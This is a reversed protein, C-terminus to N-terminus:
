LHKEPKMLILRDANAVSQISYVSTPIVLHSIHKMTSPDITIVSYPEPKIGTVTYTNSTQDAPVYIWMRSQADVAAIPRNVHQPSWAPSILKPMPTLTHWPYKSLFTASTGLQGSGPYNMATKWDSTGWHGMFNDKDSLQWVGHAGYTHGCAGSLVSMWFAYRQDSAGFNGLIGEYWPELNIFPCADRYAALASQVLFEVNGKTHGSQISDVSLWSPNHFLIRARQKKHPHVLIPRNETNLSQVYVAVENWKAIRSELSTKLIKKLLVSAFRIIITRQLFHLWKSNSVTDISLAIDAEGTLCYTVPLMGWRSIIEKWLLKMGSVGFRDIHNGWSGVICPVLGARCIKQIVRDAADFYQLNLSGDEKFALGEHGRAHLSLPDVEPPAGIVLLIVTFGKVARDKILADLISDTMRATAAYWWTDALWFFPTGDPRSIYRNGPVVRINPPFSKM